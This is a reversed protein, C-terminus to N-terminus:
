FLESYKLKVYLRKIYLLQGSDFGRPNKICINHLSVGGSPSFALDGVDVKQGILSTSKDALKVILTKKLDLYGCYILSIFFIIFIILIASIIKFIKRIDLTM